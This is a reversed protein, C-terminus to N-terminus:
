KRHGRRRRHKKRDEDDDDEEKEDKEPCRETFLTLGINPSFPRFPALGPVTLTYGEIPTPTGPNVIGGPLLNCVIELTADRIPPRDCPFLKIALKLIGPQGVGWMADVPDWDLVRKARWSGTVRVNDVRGFRLGDFHIFEGGGRVWRDRFVGCGSMAVSDGANPASAQGSLAVFYFKTRRDDDDDDDHAWAVDALAPFSLAISGIGARKLFEQREM